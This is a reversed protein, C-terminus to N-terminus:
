GVQPSSLPSSLPAPPPYLRTLHVRNSVSSCRHFHPQIALAQTKRISIVPVNSLGQAAQDALLRSADWRRCRLVSVEEVERGREAGRRGGRKRSCACPCPCAGTCPPLARLPRQLSELPAAARLYHSLPAARRLPLGDTLPPCLCPPPVSPAQCGASMARHFQCHLAGNSLKIMLATCSQQVYVMLATCWATIFSVMRSYLPLEATPVGHVFHSMMRWHRSCSKGPEM